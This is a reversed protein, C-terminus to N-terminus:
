NETECLTEESKAAVASRSGLNAFPYGLDAYDYRYTTKATPYNQVEHGTRPQSLNDLKLARM